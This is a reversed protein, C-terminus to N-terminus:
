LGLARAPPADHGVGNLQHVSTPRRNDRGRIAKPQWHISRQNLWLRPSAETIHSRVKTPSSTCARETTAHPISVTVPSTTCPLSVVSKSSSQFQRCARSPGTETAYSAPGLPNTRARASACRHPSAGLIGHRDWLPQLERNLAEEHTYEFEELDLHDTITITITISTHHSGADEYGFLEGAEISHGDRDCQWIAMRLPTMVLEVDKRTAAHWSVIKQAFVDVVFSM